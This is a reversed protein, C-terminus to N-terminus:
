FFRPSDQAMRVTFELDGQMPSTGILSIKFQGTANDWTVIADSEVAGAWILSIDSDIVTNGTGGIEVIRGTIEIPHSQNGRINNESVDIIEINVDSWTYATLMQRQESLNIMGMMHFEFQMYVVNM